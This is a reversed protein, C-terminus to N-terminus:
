EGLVSTSEGISYNQTKLADQSMGNHPGVRGADGGDLLRCTTKLNEGKGPGKYPVVKSARWKGLYIKKRWFGV